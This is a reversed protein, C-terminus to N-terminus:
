EANANIRCAAYDHWGFKPLFKPDGSAIIQDKRGIALSNMQLRERLSHLCSM